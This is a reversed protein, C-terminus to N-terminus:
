REDDDDEEERKVGEKDEGGHSVGDACLCFHYKAKRVEYTTRHRERYRALLNREQGKLSCACFCDADVSRWGGKVRM